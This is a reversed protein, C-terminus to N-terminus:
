CPHLIMTDKLIEGPQSLKPREQFNEEEDATIDNSENLLTLKFSSEDFIVHPSEEVVLTRKNFVRYARANSTYGFFIKKDSKENFKDVDSKGNNLIYCICGFVKFHSLNPRKGKYLEYPTKKLIPRVMARNIIYCATNVAEAWFYQPLGNKLLM